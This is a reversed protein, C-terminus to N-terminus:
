FNLKTHCNFSCEVWSDWKVRMVLVCHGEEEHVESFCWVTETTKTQEWNTSTQKYFTKRNSLAHLPMTAQSMISCAPLDCTRNRILNNFKKLKGSGELRLIARPNVWGTVSILVSFIRPTYLDAPTYPQCGWILFQFPEKKVSFIVRNTTFYSKLTPKQIIDILM